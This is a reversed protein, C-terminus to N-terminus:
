DFIYPKMCLQNTVIPVVPVTNVGACYEIDHQYGLKSLRKGGTCELLADLLHEAHQLYASQMAKGFDNIQLTMGHEAQKHLENLILGACLGDELAFADQAGSCLIVVDKRLSLLAHACASANLFSGAIIHTAKYSKQIARTGNTTTLIIKKGRTEEGIYEYPSNGAHFGTIKKGYREGGLWDGPQWLNKAQCVTEAPQVETCGNSLATIITSTARLVDIVVATKHIFEDSRAENVSAIVDVQM